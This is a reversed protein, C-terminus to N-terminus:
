RKKKRQERYWQTRDTQCHPCIDAPPTEGPEVEGQAVREDFDSIPSAYYKECNPCKSLRVCCETKKCKPCDLKPQMLGPDMPMGSPGITDELTAEFEHECETCRYMPKIDGGPTRDNGVYMFTLVLSGVIVVALSGM